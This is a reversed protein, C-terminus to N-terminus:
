SVNSVFRASERQGRLGRHEDTRRHVRPPHFLGARGGLQTEVEAIACVPRRGATSTPTPPACASLPLVRSRPRVHRVANSRSVAPPVRHM